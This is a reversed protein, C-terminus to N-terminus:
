PAMRGAANAVVALRLQEYDEFAARAKAGIIPPLDADRRYQDCVAAKAIEGPDGKWGLQPSGAPVTLSLEPTASVIPDLLDVMDADTLRFARGPGGPERALRSLNITKSRGPQCAVYDLIAALVISGPLSPTHGSALRHGGTPSATLLNLDRLPCGFRDDFKARTTQSNGYTRVFASIDKAISSEHPTNWASSDITQLCARLLLEEDVEVVSLDHFIMWWVPLSCDPGILLWHLWWWTAADEMTPDLGYLPHLLAAAVNTPKSNRQRSGDIPEEVLLHAAIGWFRLSRVMNKGVGLQVTADDSTFVGSDTSAAVVAKRFWGFRPHFTEHRAFTDTCAAELRM